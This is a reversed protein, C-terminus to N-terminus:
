IHILSLNIFRVYLKYGANVNPVPLIPIDLAYAGYSWQRYTTINIGESEIYENLLESSINIPALAFQMGSVCFDTSYQPNEYYGGPAGFVRSVNLVAFHAIPNVSYVYSSLIPEVAAWKTRTEDAEDVVNVPDSKYHLLGSDYELTIPKALKSQATGIFTNVEAEKVAVRANIDAIKGHYAEGAETLRQAANNIDSISM